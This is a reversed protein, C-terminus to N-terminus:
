FQSEVHRCEVSKCCSRMLDFLFQFTGIVSQVRELRVKWRNRERMGSSCPVRDGIDALDIVCCYTM